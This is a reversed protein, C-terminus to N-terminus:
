LLPRDSGTELGRHTGPGRPPLCFRFVSQNPKGKPIGSPGGEPDQRPAAQAGVEWHPGAGPVETHSGVMHPLFTHLQFRGKEWIFICGSLHEKPWVSDQCVHKTDQTEPSAAVFSLSRSAVTTRLDCNGMLAGCPSEWSSLGVSTCATTSEPPGLGERGM